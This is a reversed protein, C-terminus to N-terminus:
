SYNATALRRFRELVAAVLDPERRADPRNGELIDAASATALFGKTQATIFQRVDDPAAGVDEIIPDRGAVVSIMDELDRSSM